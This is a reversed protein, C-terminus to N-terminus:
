VPYSIDYSFAPPVDLTVCRFHSVFFVSFLLINITDSEVHLFFKSTTM